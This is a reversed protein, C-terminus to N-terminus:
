VAKQNYEKERKVSLRPCRLDTWDFLWLRLVGIFDAKLRVQTRDDKGNNGNGSRKAGSLM